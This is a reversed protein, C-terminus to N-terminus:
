SVEPFLQTIEVKVRIIEEDPTFREAEAAELTEFVAFDYHVDGSDTIWTDEIDQKFAYGTTSRDEMINGEKLIYSAWSRSENRRITGWRRRRM